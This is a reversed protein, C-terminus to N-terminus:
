ILYKDRNESLLHWFDANPRDQFSPFPIFAQTARPGTYVYQFISGSLEACSVRPM